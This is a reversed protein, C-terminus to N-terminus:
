RSKCALVENRLNEDQVAVTELATNQPLADLEDALRLEFEPSRVPVTLSICDGSIGHGCGTLCVLSIPLLM